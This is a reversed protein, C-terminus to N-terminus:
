PTFRTDTYELFLFNGAASLSMYGTMCGYPLPKRPISHRRHDPQEHPQLPWDNTEYGHHADREPLFLEQERDVSRRGGSIAAHGAQYPSLPDDFPSEDELRLPNSYPNFSGAYIGKNYPSPRQPKNMMGGNTHQPLMPHMTEHNVEHGIDRSRRPSRTPLPIPAANSYHHPMPEPVEQVSKLSGSSHRSSRRSQVGTVPPPQINEYSPGGIPTRFEGSSSSIRHSSRNADPHSIYGGRLPRHQEGFPEARNSASIFAPTPTRSQTRSHRRRHRRRRLCCFLVLAILSLVFLPVLVGILIKAWLPLGSRHNRNQPDDLQSSAPTASAASSSAHSASSQSSSSSSAPFSTVSYSASSSTSARNSATTSPGFQGSLYEQVDTPLVTFWTPTNDDLFESWLLKSLAQLNTSQPEGATTEIRSGRDYSRCHYSTWSGEEKVVAMELWMNMRAKPIGCGVESGLSYPLIASERLGSCHANSLYM